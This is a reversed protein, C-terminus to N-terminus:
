LSNKTHAAAVRVAFEFLAEVEERTLPGKLSSRSKVYEGIQVTASCVEVVEDYIFKAPRGNPLNKTWEDHPM